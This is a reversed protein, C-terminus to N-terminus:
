STKIVNCIIFCNFLANAVTAIGVGLCWNYGDTNKVDDGLMGFCVAGLSRRPSPFIFFRSCTLIRTVIVVM